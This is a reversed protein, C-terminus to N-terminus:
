HGAKDNQRLRDEREHGLQEKLNKVNTTAELLANRLAHMEERLAQVPKSGNQDINTVRADLSAYTAGISVLLIVVTVVSTLDVRWELRPMVIELFFLPPETQFWGTL